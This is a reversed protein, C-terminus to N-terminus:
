CKCCSCMQLLWLSNNWISGLWVQFGCPAATNLMLGLFSFCSTRREGWSWPESVYTDRKSELQMITTLEKTTVSWPAVFQARFTFRAVSGARAREIIGQNYFNKRKEEKKCSVPSAPLVRHWWFDVSIFIYWGTLWDALWVPFSSFYKLKPRM